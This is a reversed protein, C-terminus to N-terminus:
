RIFPIYGRKKSPQNEQGHRKAIAECRDMYGVYTQMLERIRAREDQSNISIGTLSGVSGNEISFSGFRLNEYETLLAEVQTQDDADITTGLYTTLDSKLSSTDVELTVGFHNHITITAQNAIGLVEFTKRINAASLAM